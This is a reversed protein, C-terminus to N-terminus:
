KSEIFNVSLFHFKYLIQNSSFYWRYTGIHFFSSKILIPAFGCVNVSEKNNWKNLTWNKPSLPFLYRESSTSGRTFRTISFSSARSVPVTFELISSEALTALETVYSIGWSNTKSSHVFNTSLIISVLSKHGRYTIRGIRRIYKPYQSLGKSSEM